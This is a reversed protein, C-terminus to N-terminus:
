TPAVHSSAELWSVCTAAAPRAKQGATVFEIWRRTLKEQVCNPRLRAHLCTFDVRELSQDQNACSFVVSEEGTVPDRHLQLCQGCIEKMVCQMPSNISAISRPEPHLFSRLTGSRAICIASMMAASGIVVMQTADSLPITPAGLRGEAHAKLFADDLKELGDRDYLDQFRLGFGLELTQENEVVCRRSM